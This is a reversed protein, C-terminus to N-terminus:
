DSSRSISQQHYRNVEELILGCLDDGEELCDGIFRDFHDVARYLPMSDMSVSRVFPGTKRLVSRVLHPLKMGQTALCYGYMLLSAQLPDECEEQMMRSVLDGPRDVELIGAELELLLLGDPGGSWKGGIIMSGEKLLFSTLVFLNDQQLFLIL